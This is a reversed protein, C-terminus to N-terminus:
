FNISFVIAIVVYRLFKAIFVFFLFKKFDYKLIGAIFTLPDGIIPAWSLLLSYSGYKEYFLKYKNIKEKKLISKKELYEEGKFGMYYNICSGLVNGLTAFIVLFYVNYNENLNYLLLAESGMPFLTASIFSVFFLTIYNM